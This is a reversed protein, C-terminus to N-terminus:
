LKTYLPEYFWMNVSIHESIHLHFRKERRCNGLHLDLANRTIVLLKRVFLASIRSWIVLARIRSMIAEPTVPPLDRACRNRIFIFLATIESMLRMMCSAALGQRPFLLHAHYIFLTIKKQRQSTWESPLLYNHHIFPVMSSISMFTWALTCYYPEQLPLCPPLGILTSTNIYYHIFTFTLTWYLRINPDHVWQFIYAVGLASARKSRPPGSRSIM